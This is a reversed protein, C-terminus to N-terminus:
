AVAMAPSAGPELIAPLPTDGEGSNSKDSPVASSDLHAKAIESAQSSDVSKGDISLSEGSRKFAGWSPAAWAIGTFSKVRFPEM